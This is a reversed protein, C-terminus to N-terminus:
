QVGQEVGQRLDRGLALLQEAFPLRVAKLRGRRHRFQRQNQHHDVVYRAKAGRLLAFVVTILQLIVYLLARIVANVIDDRSVMEVFHGGADPLFKGVGNRQMLLILEGIGINEVALDIVGRRFLGPPAHIVHVPRGQFKLCGHEPGPQGVPLSNLLQLLKQGPACFAQRLIRRGPPQRHYGFGDFIAIKGGAEAPPANGQAKVHHLFGGNRQRQPM